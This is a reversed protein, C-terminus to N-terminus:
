LDDGASPELDAVEIRALRVPHGEEVLLGTLADAHDRLRSHFAEALRARRDQASGGWEAARTGHPM